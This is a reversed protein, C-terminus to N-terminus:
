TREIKQTIWGLIPHYCRTQVASYIIERRGHIGAQECALAVTGAAGENNGTVTAAGVVSLHRTRAICYCYHPSNEALNNVKQSNVCM